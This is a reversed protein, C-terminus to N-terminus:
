AERTYTGCVYCGGSPVNDAFNYTMKGTGDIWVHGIVKYPATYSFIQGYAYNCLPRYPYNVTGLTGNKSLYFASRFELYFTVSGGNVAINTDGLNYPYPFREYNEISVEGAEIPHRGKDENFGYAM